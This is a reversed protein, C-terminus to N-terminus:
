NGGLYAKMRKGALLYLPILWTTTLLLHLYWESDFLPSYLLIAPTTGGYCSKFVLQYLSYSPIARLFPIDIVGYVDLIPAFLISLSMGGLVLYKLIDKFKIALIFALATYFANSIFVSPYVLWSVHLGSNFVLIGTGILALLGLSLAKSVAYERFKVPSTFLIDLIGREKEYIVIAGMFIFSLAGPESFILGPLVAAKINMPLFSLVASYILVFALYIIQFNNNFQFKIDQKFLPFLRNTM